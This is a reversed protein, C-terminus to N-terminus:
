TVILLLHACDVFSKLDYRFNGESHASYTQIYSYYVHRTCNIYIWTHQIVNM